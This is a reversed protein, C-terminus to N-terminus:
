CGDIPMMLSMKHHITSSTGFGGAAGIQCDEAAPRPRSRASTRGPSRCWRWFKPLLSVSDQLILALGGSKGAVQSTGTAQACRSQPRTNPWTQDLLGAALAAGGECACVGM